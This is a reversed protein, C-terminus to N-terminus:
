LCLSILCCFAVFHKYPKGSLRLFLYTYFCRPKTMIQGQFLPAPKRELSPIIKLKTLHTRTCNKWLAWSQNGGEQFMLGELGPARNSGLHQLSVESSLKQHPGLTGPFVPELKDKKAGGWRCPAPQHSPQSRGRDKSHRTVPSTM